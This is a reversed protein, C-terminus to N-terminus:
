KLTALLTQFMEMTQLVKNIRDEPRLKYDAKVQEEFMKFMEPNRNLVKYWNSNERIYKQYHSNNKIKFQIDLNM